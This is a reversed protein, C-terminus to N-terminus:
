VYHIFRLVTHVSALPCCKEPIHGFRRFLLTGHMPAKKHLPIAYRLLCVYDYFWPKGIFIFQYFYFLM